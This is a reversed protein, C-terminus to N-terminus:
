GVAIAMATQDVTPQLTFREMSAHTSYSRTSQKNPSPVNTMSPISADSQLTRLTRGKGAFFHEDNEGIVDMDTSSRKHKRYSSLIEEHSVVSPLNFPLQQKLPSNSNMQRLGEEFEGEEAILGTASSRVSSQVAGSKVAAIILSTQESRSGLIESIGASPAFRVESPETKRQTTSLQQQQQDLMSQFNQIREERFQQLVNGHQQLKNQNSQRKIRVYKKAEIFGKSNEPQYKPFRGAIAINNELMYNIKQRLSM